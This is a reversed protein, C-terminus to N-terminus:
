EQITLPECVLQKWNEFNQPNFIPKGLKLNVVDHMFSILEKGHARCPPCPIEDAIKAFAKWYKPGFVDKDKSRPLAFVIIKNKYLFIAVFILFLVLIIVWPKM